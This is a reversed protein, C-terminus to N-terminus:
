AIKSSIQRRWGSILVPMRRVSSRRMPAPPREVAGIPIDDEPLLMRGPPQPQGIEGIHAIKADADGAHREIVAEIVKSQGERAPFVAMDHEAALAKHRQGLSQLVRQPRKTARWRLMAAVAQRGGEAIEVVVCTLILRTAILRQASM